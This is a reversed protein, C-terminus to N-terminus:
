FINHLLPMGNGTNSNCWMTLPSYIDDKITFYAIQKDRSRQVHLSCVHLSFPLYYRVSDDVKLLAHNMTMSSLMSYFEYMHALVACIILLLIGAVAQFMFLVQELINKKWM